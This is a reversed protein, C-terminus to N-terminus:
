LNIYVEAYVTTGDDVLNAASPNCLDTCINTDNNLRLNIGVKGVESAPIPDIAPHTGARSDTSATASYFIMKPSTGSTVLGGYAFKLPGFTDLVEYVHASDPIPNTGSKFIFHYRWNLPAAAFHISYNGPSTVWNHVDPKRITIIALPKHYLLDQDVYIHQVDLGDLEFRYSGKTPAIPELAEVLDIQACYENGVNPVSLTLISLGSGSPDEPGYVDLTKPGAITSAYRYDVITDTLQITQPITNVPLLIETDHIGNDFYYVRNGLAGYLRPQQIHLLTNQMIAATKAVLLFTFRTLDPIDAIPVIPSFTNGSKRHESYIEIGSETNRARLRYSAFLAQTEATPQLVIDETSKSKYFDNKVQIKFIPVFKQTAM